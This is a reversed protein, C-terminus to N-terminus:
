QNNRWVLRAHALTQNRHVKGREARVRVLQSDESYMQGRDVRKDAIAYRVDLYM